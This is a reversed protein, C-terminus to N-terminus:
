CTSRPARTPRASRGRSRRPRGRARSPPRTSSSASRALAAAADDPHRAVRGRADVDRRRRRAPFAPLPRKRAEAFWGAAELRAKLRAFREYLAGLRGPARERRQAPVRRAGRLHLRPGCRSRCGTGCRSRSTSRRAAPLVRLAGAGARGQPQLLLPRVGRAHLQLDGREGLGPRPPARPAAAGLCSCRSRCCRGPRASQDPAPPM